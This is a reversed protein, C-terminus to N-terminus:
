GLTGLRTIPYALSCGRKASDTHLQHLALSEYAESKAIGTQRRPSDQTLGSRRLTTGSVSVAKCTKRLTEKADM